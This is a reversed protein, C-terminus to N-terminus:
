ASLGKEDPNEPPTTMRDFQARAVDGAKIFAQIADACHPDGCECPLHAHKRIEEWQEKPINGVINAFIAGLQAQALNPPMGSIVNGLFAGMQPLDGGHIIEIAM